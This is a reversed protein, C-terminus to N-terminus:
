DNLRDTLRDILRDILVFLSMGPVLILGGPVGRLGLFFLSLAPVCHRRARAQKPTDRSEDMTPAPSDMTRCM